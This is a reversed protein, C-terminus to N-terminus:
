YPVNTTKTVKKKKKSVNESSLKYNIKKHAPFLFCVALASQDLFKLHTFQDAFDM